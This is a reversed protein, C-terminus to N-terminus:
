LASDKGRVRRKGCNFVKIEAGAVALPPEIGLNAGQREPLRM